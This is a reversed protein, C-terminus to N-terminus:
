LWKLYVKLEYVAWAPIFYTKRPNARPVVRYCNCTTGLFSWAICKPNDFCRLPCDIKQQLNEKSCGEGLRNRTMYGWPQKKFRGYQIIIETEHGSSSSKGPISKQSNIDVPFPIEQAFTVALLLYLSAFIFYPTFYQSSRMM